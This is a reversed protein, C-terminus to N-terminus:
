GWFIGTADETVVGLLQEINRDHPYPQYALWDDNRDASFLHWMNQEGDKLFRAITTSYWIDVQKYHVRSEYLIVEDGRIRYELKLKGQLLIPIREDCYNDFLQQVRKIEFESLKM